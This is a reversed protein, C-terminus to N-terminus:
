PRLVACLIAARYLLRLSAAGTSGVLPFLHKAVAAGTQVSAMAVLVLAVSPLSSSPRDTM